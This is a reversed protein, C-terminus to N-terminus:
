ARPGDRPPPLEGQPAEALCQQYRAVAEDYRRNKAAMEGLKYNAQASFNSKAFREAIRRYFQEAKATDGGPALHSEAAICLVAPLLANDAFRGNNLLAEAQRRAAIYDKADFAISASM